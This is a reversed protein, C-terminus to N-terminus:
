TPELLHNIGLLPIYIWNPRYNMEYRLEFLMKDLMYFDLLRALADREIPVLAALAAGDRYEWLFAASTWARWIKAWPELREFTEFQNRTVTLLESYVAYDFSRLMGAVDKLPSQKARREALTRGPEGEFDLIIFDNERWLVQGLHYDGHCRIKVLSGVGELGRVTQEVLAPGGDLARQASARAIPDLTDLRDALTKFILRSQAVLRDSQVRLAAADLPEPAFDPHDRDSALALHMEATRWGLVAASRLAAGVAEFVVTPPESESLELIHQRPPDIPELRRGESVVQEFYRGLVGLM